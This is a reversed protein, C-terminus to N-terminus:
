YGKKAKKPQFLDQAEGQIEQSRAQILAQVEQDLETERVRALMEKVKAKELELLVEPAVMGQLDQPAGEAGLGQPLAEPPMGEPPLGAEEEPPLMGQARGQLAALFEDQM